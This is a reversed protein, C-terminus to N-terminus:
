KSTKNSDQSATPATTPKILASDNARKYETPKVVPVTPTKPKGAVIDGQNSNLTSLSLVLLLSFSVVSTNKAKRIWTSRKIINIGNYKVAKRYAHIVTLYGQTKIWLDNKLSEFKKPRGVSSYVNYRGQLMGILAFLLALTISFIFMYFIWGIPNYEIIKISIGAFVINLWLITKFTNYQSSRDKNVDRLEDKLADLLLSLNHEYGDIWQKDNKNDRDKQNNMEVWM